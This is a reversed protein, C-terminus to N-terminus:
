DASSLLKNTFQLPVDQVCFYMYLMKGIHYMSVSQTHARACIHKNKYTYMHVTIRTQQYKIPQFPLAHLTHFM